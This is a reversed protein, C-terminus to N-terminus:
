KKTTPPVFSAKVGYVMPQTGSQQAGMDVAEGECFNPIVEAKHYGPSSPALQFNGTKTEFSFGAAQVYTPKDKISHKESDNPFRGTVLDFDFDNDQSRKDTSISHTDTSRVQLLNNRTM